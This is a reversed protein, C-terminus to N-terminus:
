AVNRQSCDHVTWTSVNVYIIDKNGIAHNSVKQGADIIIHIHLAQLDLNRYRYYNQPKLVTLNRHRPPKILYM